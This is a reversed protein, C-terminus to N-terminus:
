GNSGGQTEVKKWDRYDLTWIGEHHSCDTKGNHSLCRVLIGEEGVATVRIITPGYGDDGVLLTGAGWGNKRCKDASNM